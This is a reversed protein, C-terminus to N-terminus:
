LSLIVPYEGRDRRRHRIVIPMGEAVAVAVTIWDMSTLLSATEIRTNTKTELARRFM